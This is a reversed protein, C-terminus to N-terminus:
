RARRKRRPRPAPNDTRSKNLVRLKAKLAARSNKQRRNFTLLEMRLYHFAQAASLFTQSNGRAYVRYQPKVPDGSLEISWEPMRVGLKARIDYINEGEVKMM